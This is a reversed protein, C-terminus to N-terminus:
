SIAMQPHSKINHGLSLKFFVVVFVFFFLFFFLYVIRTGM